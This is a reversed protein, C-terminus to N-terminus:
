SEQGNSYVTIHMSYYTCQLIYVTIHSIYVDVFLCPSPLTLFLYLRGLLPGTQRCPLHQQQAAKVGAGARLSDRSVAGGGRCVEGQRILCLLPLRWLLFSLFHIFIDMWPPPILHLQENMTFITIFIIWNTLFHFIIELWSPSWTVSHFNGNM